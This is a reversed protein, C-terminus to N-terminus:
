GGVAVHLKDMELILSGTSGLRDMDETTVTPAVAYAV